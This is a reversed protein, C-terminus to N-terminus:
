VTPEEAAKTKKARSSLAVPTGRAPKDVVKEGAQQQIDDRAQQLEHGQQQDARSLCLKYLCGAPAVSNYCSLAQLVPETLIFMDAQTHTWEVRHGEADM